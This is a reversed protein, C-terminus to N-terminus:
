VRQLINSQNLSCHQTRPLEFSAMSLFRVVFYFNKLLCNQSNRENRTRKSSAAYGKMKFRGSKQKWNMAKCTLHWSGARRTCVVSRWIALKNWIRATFLNLPSVAWTCSISATCIPTRVELPVASPKKVGLQVPIDYLQLRKQGDESGKLALYTWARTITSDPKKRRLELCVSSLIDATLWANLIHLCVLVWM